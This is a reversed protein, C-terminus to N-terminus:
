EQCRDATPQGDGFLDPDPERLSAGLVTFQVPRGKRGIASVVYRGGSAMAVVLVRQGVRTRVRGCYAAHAGIIPNWV